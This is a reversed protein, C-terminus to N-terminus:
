PTNGAAPKAAVIFQQVEARDKDEQALHDARLKQYIAFEQQALEKKGTHVYDTGLRYHADSLKPDLQLAREYEPISKEYEHRDAFLNGLQQHAEALKDDLTISKKLLSEVENLDATSGQLRKGKWLSMAYYLQARANAPQLEAYRRFRETVQDAQSPSSDYARALFQYCRPDSPSLDAARLLAKVADEYLGRAYLAMGLGIQLRPSNPYKQTAAQFVEIAPEYTRHLLLESGWAFLNDDSPDMHAAAEFEQAAEVFRGSKEDIQGLLNHLEATNKQALLSQVVGRANDFQGTLLEAMALDYGNDYAAPNIQQATKLLPIAEALRESQIYFEGLNHNASYDRPELALAQRFEAGAEETKATRSLIAALNTHAAASGPNLRVAARLQEIAKADQSLSEYTLGLLERLEFSKPAQPLLKELQVAAEKFQGANYQAVASRFQQDLEQEHTTAATLSLAWALLSAAVTLRVRSQRSV